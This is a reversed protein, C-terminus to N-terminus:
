RPWRRRASASRTRRRSARPARARALREGHEIPLDLVPEVPQGGLLDGIQDDGVLRDPRDAGSPDRGRRLGLLRVRVNAGPERLPEAGVRGVVAVHM